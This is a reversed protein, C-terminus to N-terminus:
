AKQTELGRANPGREQMRLLLAFILASASLVGFFILMPTYGGPNAASAHNADNLRGVFLNCVTLGVNQLLFMLGYASGLREPAVLLTVAPWLVAPVLSYSIGLMVTSVWLNISPSALVVFCLPLLLSGGVMLTARYGFRDVLWGFAPTAFIAALFVHSNMTSAAELSLGHAHQFYKIAFTSRFPLVASYFAVCLLTVYWFSRDFRTLNRLVERWSIAESAAAGLQYRRAAQRDIVWYAVTAAVALAVLGAAIWLPPQWGAAYASRFLTPSLDAAYSGVRAFSLNLGLALGLMSARFWQGLGASIAVIMSEAGLGFLLRGLAMTTFNGTAATLVAGLLCITTFTVLANRVGFRDVLVGGLLVMVINPASYIANLTGIDSDSFGLQKQLLDAVPGISDYVYYNGFMAVCLLTFATWRLAAPPTQPALTSM